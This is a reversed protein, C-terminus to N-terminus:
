KRKKNNRNKMPMNKTKGYEPKMQIEENTTSLRKGVIKKYQYEKKM